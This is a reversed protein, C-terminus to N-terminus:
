LVASDFNSGTIPMKWKNKNQSTFVKGLSWSQWWWQSDTCADWAVISAGTASRNQHDFRQDCFRNWNPGHHHKRSHWIGCFVAVVWTWGGEIRFSQALSKKPWQIWCFAASQMARQWRKCNKMHCPPWAVFVEHCQSSAQSFDSHHTGLFTM